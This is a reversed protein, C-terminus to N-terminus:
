SFQATIGGIDGRNLEIHVLYLCKPCRKFIEGSTPKRWYEQLKSKCKPCDEINKHYIEM